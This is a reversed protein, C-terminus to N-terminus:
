EPERPGYTAVAAAEANDAVATTLRPAPEGESAPIGIRFFFEEHGAPTYM